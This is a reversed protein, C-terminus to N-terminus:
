VHVRALGRTLNLPLTHRVSLPSLTLKRDKTGKQEGVATWSRADQTSELIGLGQSFLEQHPRKNLSGPKAGKGGGGGGGVGGGPLIPIMQEGTQPGSIPVM